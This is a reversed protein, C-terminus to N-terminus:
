AFFGAPRTHAGKTVTMRRYLEEFEALGTDDLDERVDLNLKLAKRVDYRTEKRFTLLLQEPERDIAVELTRASWPPEEMPLYGLEALGGRVEETGAGSWFPDIRLALLRHSALEKEIMRLG